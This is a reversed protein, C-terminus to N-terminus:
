QYSKKGDPRATPGAGTGDSASTISGLKDTPVLDDCWVAGQILQQEPM